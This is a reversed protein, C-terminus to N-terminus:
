WGFCAVRGGRLGETQPATAPVLRGGEVYVGCPHIAPEDLPCGAARCAAPLTPLCQPAPRAGVHVEFCPRAPAAAAGRAPRKTGRAKAPTGAERAPRGDEGEASPAGVGLMGLLVIGLVGIRRAWRLGAM